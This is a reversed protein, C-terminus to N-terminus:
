HRSRRLDVNSWVQIDLDNCWHNRLHVHSLFTLVHMKHVELRLKREAATLPKRRNTSSTDLGIQDAQLDLTLDQVDGLPERQMSEATEATIALTVDQWDADESDESGDSENYITQRVSSSEREVDESPTVLGQVAGNQSRSDGLENPGGSVVLRGGVRRKKIPRGDESASAQSITAAEAILDQFVDAVGAENPSEEKKQPRGRTPRGARRGRPM